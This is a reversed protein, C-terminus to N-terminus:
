IFNQLFTCLTLTISFKSDLVLVRRPLTLQLFRRNDKDCKDVKGDTRGDM